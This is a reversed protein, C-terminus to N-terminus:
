ALAEPTTTATTATATRSVRLRGDVSKLTVDDSTLRPVDTLAPAVLVGDHAVTLALLTEDGAAQPVPLRAALTTEDVRSTPLLQRAGRSGAPTALAYVRTAAADGPVTVLVEPRGDVDWRAGSVRVAPARTTTGGHDFSLNGHSVTGFLVDDPGLALADQGAGGSAGGFRAFPGVVDGWAPAVALDWVGEVPFVSADVLLELGTAPGNPSKRGGTVTAPADVTRGDGRLTWRARVGDPAPFEGAARAWGRLVATGDRLALSTLQTETSAPAAGLLEPDVAAAVAPPVDLVFGAPTMVRRLDRVNGGAHEVLASVLETRRQFVLDLLPQAPAPLLARLGPGWLHGFRDVVRDVLEERQEPDLKLFRQRFLGEVAPGGFPRVLLSDRDPGPETYREIVEAVSWAKAFKEDLTEGIRSMHVGDHGRVVYYDGDALVVIRRATLEAEVVFALDEGNRLGARFWQDLGLVHERRFMKTPGLARILHNRVMDADLTSRAFMSKAVGRGGIGKLRGFAVDAGVLDAADVLKELAPPPLLDDADLFFLYTGTAARIGANRPAAASGSNPQTLVRMRPHEAALRRLIALSGDSSGDDVAVIEIQEAPMTQAFVSRIAEEVFREANYVPVVVSVKPPATTSATTSPRGPTAVLTATGDSAIRVLLPAPRRGGLSLVLQWLGPTAQATARLTVEEGRVTVTAKGPATSAGLRRRLKLLARRALSGVPAVLEATGRAVVRSAGGTVPHVRVGDLPVTLSVTTRREAGPKATITAASTRPRAGDVVGRQAGATDVTLEGAENPYAVLVSSGAVTARPDGDATVPLHSRAGLVVCRARVDWVGRALRAGQAARAPNLRSEATVRLTVLDDQGPVPVLEVSSRGPLSWTSHQTRERVSLTVKARAVDDTVDLVADPLEGFEAPLVRVVRDGVRRLRRATGRADSWETTTRLHLIGDVWVMGDLRARGEFERDLTDVRRLLDTRRRRLLWAKPRDLAPLDADWEEPVHKEVIRLARDVAHEARDPDRGSALYSTLRGLVRLRYQHMLQRKRGDALDETDLTGAIFDFLDGLRDWFEDEWPGYTASNNQDTAHWLYVPTDALVSVVRAHKYCEVNFYVDEWLMRRGEPFRIDHELLFDRRYFKHPMMPLLAGIGRRPLANPINATYNGLGWRPDSTKLEKANLVDARHATAYEYSARLGDPFIEDDHDMFLVYEGRAMAIGVNRPRSPWGSNEIRDIRVNPREDRIRQLREWTDDPSGDDVIILEFEDQPMTQAALSDVVRRIGDGPQYAPVVVSVKLSAAQTM